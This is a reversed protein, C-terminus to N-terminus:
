ASKNGKNLQKSMSQLDRIQANTIREVLVVDIECTELIEMNNYKNVMVAIDENSKRGRLTVSYGEIGQNYEKMIIIKTM